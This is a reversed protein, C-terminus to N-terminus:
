CDCNYETHQLPIPSDSRPRDLEVGSAGWSISLTRNLSAGLRLLHALQASSTSFM